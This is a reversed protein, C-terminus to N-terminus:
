VWHVVSLVPPVDLVPVAAIVLDNEMTGVPSVTVTDSAM